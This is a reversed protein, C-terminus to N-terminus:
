YTVALPTGGVVDELVHHYAIQRVPYAVAEGGIQVALVMEGPEVFAAAAVPSAYGPQLLPPFMREFVDQRSAWAAAGTVLLAAALAVRGPWRTSRWLRGALAAAVALAALTAQPGFRLLAWARALGAASQPLFPRMIVLPAVVVTVAGATVALLAMVWPWRRPQRGRGGAQGPAPLPSRPGRLPQLPRPPDPPPSPETSM